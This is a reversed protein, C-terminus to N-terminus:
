GTHPRLLELHTQIFDKNKSSLFCKFRRLNTMRRLASRIVSYISILQYEMTASSALADITFSLIYPGFRPSPTIRRCLVVTHLVDEAHITRYLLREAEPQLARFVLALACLDFKHAREIIPRYLELPLAAM